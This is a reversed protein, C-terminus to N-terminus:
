SRSTRPIVGGRGEGGRSSSSSSSSRQRPGVSAANGPVVPLLTFNSLLQRPRQRERVASCQVARSQALNRRTPHSHTPAPRIFGQVVLCLGLNLMADDLKRTVTGHIFTEEAESCSSSIATPLM